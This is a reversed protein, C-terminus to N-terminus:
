ARALMAARWYGESDDWAALNYVSVVEVDSFGADYVMQVLCHLSPMSWLLNAFGGFYHTLTPDTLSPDFSDVILAMGDDATVRRMACLADLPRALHLLVDGAHVFDFVGLEDPDLEYLNKKVREVRSGLATRAVLFPDSAYEPPLTDGDGHPVEDPTEFPVPAGAPLDWDAWSSIDVATVNGGRREFEFAWFGNSCAVDLCRKNALSEPIGYHPVLRRHDFMGRSVVGDPMEITHYWPLAAVLAALAPEESAVPSSESGESGSVLDESRATSSSEDFDSLFALSACPDRKIAHVEPVPRLKLKPGRGEVEITVEGAAAATVAESASALAAPREEATAAALTDAQDAQVPRVAGNSEPVRRGTRDLVARLPRALSEPVTLVLGFGHSNLSRTPM